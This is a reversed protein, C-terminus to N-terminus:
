SLYGLRDLDRMVDAMRQMYINASNVNEKIFSGKIDEGNAMKQALEDIDPTDAADATIIPIIMVAMTLGFKGFRKLQDELASYPFLKKADSGLRTLFESLTNHYIQLFENYHNDRLKKNTNCFIYYM